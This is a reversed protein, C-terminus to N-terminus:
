TKVISEHHFRRTSFSELAIQQQPEGIPNITVNVCAPKGSAFARALAADLDESNEVLEGHGGLAETLLDYRALSLKTGVVRDRGYMIEQFIQEVNWGANNGVVVVFPLENRAATEMELAHFGFAGDGVYCIIRADPEALRAGIAYPVSVGLQMLGDSMLCGSPRTVRIAPSVWGAFTGYGWSRITRDDVFHEVSRVVSAPHVGGSLQEIDGSEPWAPEPPWSSRATWQRRRAASVLQECVVGIDASVGVAPTLNQGIHTPDPYVHVFRVDPQMAGFRMLTALSSRIGLLVILDAQGVSQLGGWLPHLESVMGRASEVLYFPTGTLNILERLPADARAWFAMTGGVILPREAAALLDIIRDVSGPDAATRVTSDSMYSPTLPAIDEEIMGELLNVPVTLHTPGVVGSTMYRFALSVFEPIREISPIMASWKCFPKGMEDQPIEQMAGKGLEEVPPMGTILLVPNGAIHAHVLGPIANTFGPGETAIAVGPARKVRAYGEAAHVAAAEHRTGVIRIQELDCAEYLAFVATGPIGFAVEVGEARLARAMLQAGTIRGM